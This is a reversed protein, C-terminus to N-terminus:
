GDEQRVLCVSPTFSSYIGSAACRQYYYTQEQQPIYVVRHHHMSSSSSSLAIIIECIQNHSRSGANKMPRDPRSTPSWPTSKFKNDGIRRYRPLQFPVSLSSFTYFLLCPSTQREKVGKRKSFCDSAPIGKCELFWGTAM